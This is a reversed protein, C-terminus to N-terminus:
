PYPIESVGLQKCNNVFDNELKLKNKKYELKEHKQFDRFHEQLMDFLIVLRM